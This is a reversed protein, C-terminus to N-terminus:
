EAKRKCALQTHKLAAVRCYGSWESARNMFLLRINGSGVLVPCVVRILPCCNQTILALVSPSWLLAPRNCSRQSSPAFDRKSVVAVLNVPLYNINVLLCDNLWKNAARTWNLLFGRPFASIMLLKHNSSKWSRQQHIYRLICCHLFSGQTVRSNRACFSFGSALGQWM